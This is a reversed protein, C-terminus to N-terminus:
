IDPRRTGAIWAILRDYDTLELRWSHEKQLDWAGKTFRSTTVALAKNAQLKELVFLLKQVVGIGVKLEPKYRKCEVIFQEPGIIDKSRRVVFVDVGGDKTVPTLDVEYGQSALLDAVVEEFVRAELNLVLEPFRKIQSVLGKDFVSIINGLKQYEEGSCSLVYAMLGKLLNAVRDAVKQHERKVNDLIEAIRAADGQFPEGLTVWDHSDLKHMLLEDLCGAFSSCIRPFADHLQMIAINPAHRFIPSILKKILQEGIDGTADALAQGIVTRQFSNAMLSLTRDSAAMLLERVEDIQRIQLDTNDFIQKEHFPERSRLLLARQFSCLMENVHLLTFFSLVLMRSKETLTKGPEPGGEPKASCASM